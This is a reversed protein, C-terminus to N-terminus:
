RLYYKMGFNARVGEQITNSESAPQIHHIPYEIMAQISMSRGSLQLGPTFFVTGYETGGITNGRYRDAMDYHSSVGLLLDLPASSAAPKALGYGLTLRASVLDGRRYLEKQNLDLEHGVGVQMWSDKMFYSITMASDLRVGGTNIMAEPPIGYQFSKRQLPVSLSEHIAISYKRSSVAKYTTAFRFSSTEITKKQGTQSSYQSHRYEVAGGLYFDGITAELPVILPVSYSEVSTTPGKVTSYEIGGGVPSRFSSFGPKPSLPHIGGPVQPYLSGPGAFLLTVAILLSPAKIGNKRKGANM